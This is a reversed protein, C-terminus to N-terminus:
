PKAECTLAAVAAAVARGFEAAHAAEITLGPNQKNPWWAGNGDKHWFRICIRADDVHGRPNRRAPQTTIRLENVAASITGHLRHNGAPGFDRPGPPPDSIHPPLHSEDRMGFFELRQATTPDSM